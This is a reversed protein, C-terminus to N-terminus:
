YKPPELNIGTAASGSTIVGDFVPPPAVFLLGYFQSNTIDLAQNLAGPVINIAETRVPGRINRDGVRNFDFTQSSMLGYLFLTRQCNSLLDRHQPSGVAGDVYPTGNNDTCTTTQKQSYLFGQIQTVLQGININGGAIVGFSALQLAPRATTTSEFVNGALTVNGDAWLTVRNSLTLPSTTITANGTVHILIGDPTNPDTLWQDLNKINNTDKSLDSANGNFTVTPKTSSYSVAGIGPDAILDPRCVGSYRNATLIGLPGGPFNTVLGGASVVYDGKSVAAGSQGRVNDTSSVKCAVRFYPYDGGSHVDGAGTTLYPYEPSYIYNIAVEDGQLLPRGGTTSNYTIVLQGTNAFGRTHVTNNFPVPGPGNITNTRALFCLQITTNSNLRDIQTSDLTWTITGGPPGNVQPSTTPSQACAQSPTGMYVEHNSDLTDTITLSSIKGLIPFAGNNYNALRPDITIAFGPVGSTCGGTATRFIDTNEAFFCGNPKKTVQVAAPIPYKFTLWTESNSFDAKSQTNDSSSNQEYERLTFGDVADNMHDCDNGACGIFNTLDMCQNAQSQNNTCSAMNGNLKKGPNNMLPQVSGAGIATQNYWVWNAPNNCAVASSGPYKAGGMSDYDHTYDVGTLGGPPFITRHSNADSALNVTDSLHCNEQTFMFGAGKTQASGIPYSYPPNVQYVGFANQSWPLQNNATWPACPISGYGDAVIQPDSGLRWCWIGTKGFRPSDIGAGGADDTFAAPSRWDRAYQPPRSYPAVSVAGAKTYDIFLGHNNATNQDPVGLRVEVARQGGWKYFSDNTDVFGHLRAGGNSTVTGDPQTYSVNNWTCTESSLLAGFFLGPDNNAGSRFSRAQYHYGNDNWEYEVKGYDNTCGNQYYASAYHGVLFVLSSAIGLVGLTFYARQNKPNLRLRSLGRKGKATFPLYNRM